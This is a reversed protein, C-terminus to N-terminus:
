TLGFVVNESSAYFATSEELTFLRVSKVTRFDQAAQSPRCDQHMRKPLEVHSSTLPPAASAFISSEQGKKLVYM